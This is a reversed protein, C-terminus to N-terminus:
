DLPYKLFLNELVLRSNANRELQWIALETQKFSNMIRDEPWSHALTELQQKFDINSIPLPPGYFDNRIALLALDHWWSLWTRLMIPLVEPKRSLKEALTFRSVRKGHLSERLLALQNQRHQLIEPDKSADIAWGIRGNALRSLLLADDSSVGHRTMLTEEILDSAVPRLNITRCRSTITPLLTHSDLTTLLLIVNSPPEELTKLFANAANINATDFRKIIAVRYKAEYPSLNLEKQLIRIQDIKLSLKGRGSIEPLILRVDPHHDTEILKCTRCQGCPREDPSAGCNLGQAFTRALLTKGIQEVGSILYAHGIRGHMLSGDLLQVAWDHGVIRNWRSM